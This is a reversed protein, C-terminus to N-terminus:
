DCFCLCRKQKLHMEKDRIKKLNMQLPSISPPRPALMICLIHGIRKVLALTM